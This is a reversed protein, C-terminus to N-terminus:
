DNRCAKRLERMNIKRVPSKDWSDHRNDEAEKYVKDVIPQAAEDFAEQGQKAADCLALWTSQDSSAWNHAEWTEWNTWGNYSHDVKPKRNVKAGSATTAGSAIKAMVAKRQSPSKFNM